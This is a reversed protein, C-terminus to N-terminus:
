LSVVVICYSVFVCFVCMYVSMGSITGHFQHAVNGSNDTKGGVLVESQHNFTTLQHQGENDDNDDDDDDAAAAAATAVFDLKFDKLLM